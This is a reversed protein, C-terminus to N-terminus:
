VFKGDDTVTLTMFVLKDESIHEDVMEDLEFRYKFGNRIICTITDIETNRNHSTVYGILENLYYVGKGILSQKHKGTHMVKKFTAEGMIKSKTVEAARLRYCIEDFGDLIALFHYSVSKVFPVSESDWNDPTERYAHYIYEYEDNVLGLLENLWEISKVDLNQNPDSLIENIAETTRDPDFSSPEQCSGIKLKEKWYGVQALEHDTIGPHFERCFIWNSYDGTVAMIGSTNIYKISDYFTGPKKLYHVKLNDSEEIILEHKSFDIRTRKENM